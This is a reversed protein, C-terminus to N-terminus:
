LADIEPIKIAVTKYEDFDTLSLIIHFSRCDLGIKTFVITIGLSMQAQAGIQNGFM